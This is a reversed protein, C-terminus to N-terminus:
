PLAELIGRPGFGRADGAHDGIISPDRDAMDCLWQGFIQSYTPGSAKEKFITGSAPDFPGPGHWKIPDAEAPAYGKGKRTM